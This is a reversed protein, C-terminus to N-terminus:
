ASFAAAGVILPRVLPFAKPIVGHEVPDPAFGATRILELTSRNCHCGHGVHVWIPQLRDQWRALGADDARVHELFLLRGDPKLVRRLESLARAPDSVTCLVLTSVAFDFHADTVPLSEAPASIVRAPAPAESLRRALRKAMPEEPEVLVLETLGTRPYHALNAGTGAGIEIVAGSTQSLLGQRRDALGAKESSAMMRDYGAAFMRGALSM